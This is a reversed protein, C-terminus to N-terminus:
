RIKYAQHLKKKKQNPPLFSHRVTTREQNMKKEKRKKEKKKEEQKPFRLCYAVETGFPFSPYWGYVSLFIFNLIMTRHSSNLQSNFDMASASSSRAAFSLSFSFLVMPALLLATSRPTLIGSESSRRTPFGGFPGRDCSAVGVKEHSGRGM